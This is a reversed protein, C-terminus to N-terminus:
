QIEAKIQNGTLAFTKPQYKDLKPWLEACAAAGQAVVDTVIEVAIGRVM